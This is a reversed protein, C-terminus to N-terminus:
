EKIGIIENEYFLISGKGGPFMGTNQSDIGVGVPEKLVRPKKNETQDIDNEANKEGGLIAINVKRQQAEVAKEKQEVEPTKGLEVDQGDGISIEVQM